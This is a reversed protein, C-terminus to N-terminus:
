TQAREISPATRALAAVCVLPKILGIVVWSLVAVGVGVIIRWEEHTVTGRGFTGRLAVM